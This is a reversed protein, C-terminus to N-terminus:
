AHKVARSSRIGFALIALGVIATISGIWIWPPNNSMFSGPIYGAGQLAFVTGALLVLVGFVVFVIRM